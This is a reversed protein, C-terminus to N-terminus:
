KSVIVLRHTLVRSGDQRRLEQRLRKRSSVQAVIIRAAADEVTRWRGTNPDKKVFGAEHQSDNRIVTVIKSLIASKQRKTHAASYEMAFTSVIEHLRKNGVHDAIRRGRGVIVESVTPYFSEPLVSSSSTPIMNNVKELNPHMSSLVFDPPSFFVALIEPKNQENKHV